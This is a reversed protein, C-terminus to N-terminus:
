ETAPLQELQERLRVNQQFLERLLGEQQQKGTEAKLRRVEEYTPGFAFQEPGQEEAEEPLLPVAGPSPVSSPATNGTTQTHVLEVRFLPALQAGYRRLLFLLAVVHILLGTLLAGLSGVLQLLTTTLFSSDRGAPFPRAAPLASVSPAAPPSTLTKGPGEPEKDSVVTTEPPGAIVAPPIPSVAIKEEPWLRPSIGTAAPLMLQERPIESGVRAGSSPASGDGNTLILDGKHNDSGTRSSNAPSSPEARHKPQTPHHALYDRVLEIRARVAIVQPHEPGFDASLAKDELLLPLLVQEEVSGPECAILEAPMSEPAPFQPGDDQQNV